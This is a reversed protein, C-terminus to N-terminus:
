PPMCTGQHPFSFFATSSFILLTSHLFLTPFSPFPVDFIPMNSLSFCMRLQEVWLSTTNMHKRIDSTDESTQTHWIQHKLSYQLTVSIYFLLLIAFTCFGHQGWSNRTISACFLLCEAPVCLFIIQVAHPLWVTVAKIESGHIGTNLMSSALAESDRLGREFQSTVQAIQSDSFGHNAQQILILRFSSLHLVAFLVLSHAFTHNCGSFRAPPQRGAGATASGQQLSSEEGCGSDEGAPDNGRKEATWGRKWGRQWPESALFCQRLASLVATSVGKVTKSFLTKKM